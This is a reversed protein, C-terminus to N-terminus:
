TLKLLKYTSDHYQLKYLIVQKGLKNYEINALSQFMENEDYTLTTNSFFEGRKISMLLFDYMRKKYKEADPTESEFAEHGGMGDPVIKYIKKDIIQFNTRAGNIPKKEYIYEDELVYKYYRLLFPITIRHQTHLSKYIIYNYSPISPIVYLIGFSIKKKLYFEIMDLNLFLEDAGFIVAVAEKKSENLGSCLIERKNDKKGKKECNLSNLMEDIWTKYMVCKSLICQMFNLFISIDMKEVFLTMQMAFRTYFKYQESFGPLILRPKRLNTGVSYANFLSPLRQNILKKSLNIVDKFTDHVDQKKEFDIDTICVIENLFKNSSDRDSDKFLPIMRMLTGFVGKHYKKGGFTDLPYQFQPFDFYVLEVHPMQKLAMMINTWSADKDFISSDYHIRLFSKPIAKRINQALLIVGDKYKSEDKYPNPMRFMSASVIIPIKPKGKVEKEVSFKCDIGNDIFMNEINEYFEVLSM